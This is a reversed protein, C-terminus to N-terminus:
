CRGGAPWIRLGNPTGAALVLGDPGRAAALNSTFPARLDLRYAETVGDATRRLAALGGTEPTPVVLEPQGDGDFDGAAARDLNRSGFEHSPYSGRAAVRELRDGDLRHFEAEAADHPTRVSAIEREGDPGFPAVAIQHRWGYPNGVPDSTAVVTGGETGDDRLFALSAGREADSATVLISQEGGMEVLMPSLGEIVGYPPDVTRVARTEPDVISVNGGEVNDGLAGHRYTTPNGLLYAFRGDTVIRADATASVDLKGGPLTLDGDGNVVASGGPIPTPHSFVSGSRALRAHGADVALLPPGEGYTPFPEVPETTCGDLRFARVLGDTLVTAVVVTDSARDPAAVVWEAEAPLSVDVPEVEPVRGTGTLYRNGSARLFTFGYTSNGALGSLWPDDATSAPTPTTSEGRANCGAVSGAAVAALSGLLRRRRM